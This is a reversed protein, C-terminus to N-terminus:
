TLRAVLARSWFNAMPIYMGQEEVLCLNPMPAHSHEVGGKIVDGGIGPDDNDTVPVLDRAVV